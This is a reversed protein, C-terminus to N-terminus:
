AESGSAPKVASSVSASWSKMKAFLQLHFPVAVFMATKLTLKSKSRSISLLPLPNAASRANSKLKWLM